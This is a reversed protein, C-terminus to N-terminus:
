HVEHVILVTVPSKFTTESCPVFMPDDDDDDDDDQFEPKFYLHIYCNVDQRNSVATTGGPCLDRLCCNCQKKINFWMHFITAM